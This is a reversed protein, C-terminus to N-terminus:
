TTIDDTTVRRTYYICSVEVCTIWSLKTFSIKMVTEMKRWHRFVQFMHIMPTHGMRKAHGQITQKKLKMTRASNSTISQSLKHPQKTILYDAEPNSCYAHWQSGRRAIAAYESMSPLCKKLMAEILVQTTMNLLKALQHKILVSSILMWNQMGSYLKCEMPDTHALKQLSCIRLLSKRQEYRRL